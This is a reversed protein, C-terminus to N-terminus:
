DHALSYEDNYRTDAAEVGPADSAGPPYPWPNAACLKKTVADRLGFTQQMM